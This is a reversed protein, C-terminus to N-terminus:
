EVDYMKSSRFVFRNLLKSFELDRPGFWRGGGGALEGRENELLLEGGEGEKSTGGGGAVRRRSEGDAM